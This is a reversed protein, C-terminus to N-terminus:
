HECEVREERTRWSEIRSDASLCQMVAPDGPLSVILTYYLGDGSGEIRHYPIKRVASETAQDLIYTTKTGPKLTIEFAVPNYNRDGALTAGCKMCVQSQPPAIAPPITTTDVRM